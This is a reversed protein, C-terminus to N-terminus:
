DVKDKAEEAGEEMRHEAKKATRKMKEGADEINDKVESMYCAYSLMTYLVSDHFHCFSFTPIILDISLWM